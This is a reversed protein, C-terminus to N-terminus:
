FPAEQDIEFSVFDGPEPMGREMDLSRGSLRDDNIRPHHVIWSTRVIFLVELFDIDHQTRMPMAVVNAVGHLERFLV